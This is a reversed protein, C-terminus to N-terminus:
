EMTYIFNCTERWGWEDALFGILHPKYQDLGFDEFKELIDERKMEMLEAHSYRILDSPRFSYGQIYEDLDKLRLLIIQYGVPSFEEVWREYELVDQIYQGVEDNDNIGLKNILANINKSM